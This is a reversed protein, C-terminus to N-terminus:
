QDSNNKPRIFRHWVESAKLLGWIVEVQLTDSVQSHYSALMKKTQITRAYSNSM